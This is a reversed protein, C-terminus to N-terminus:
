SLKKEIWAKSISLGKQAMCSQVWLVRAYFISYGWGMNKKANADCEEVAAVYRHVETPIPIEPLDPITELIEDKTQQIQDVIAQPIDELAKALSDMMKLADLTKDYMAALVVGEPLGLDIAPVIEGIAILNNLANIRKDFKSLTLWIGGQIFPTLAPTLAKLLDPTIKDWPIPDPKKKM